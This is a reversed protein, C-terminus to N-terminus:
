TFTPSLDRGPAAPRRTEAPWTGGALHLITPALDIVHGRRPATRRPGRIGAPWHVISRRPSAAKTSGPRTAASRRTPPARGAPGLCLFTAASGPAAAPDHGDGRVMIEASAGNDSLFFILTNDLANM